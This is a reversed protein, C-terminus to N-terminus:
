ARRSREPDLRLEPHARRVDHRQRHLGRRALFGRRRSGAAQRVGGRVRADKLKLESSWTRRGLGQRLEGVRARRRRACRAAVVDGDRVRRHRLRARHGVHYDQPLGLLAKTREIALKLRAKGDKARHSRGLFAADLSKATWGPHKACPGSSFHPNAPRKTPKTAVTM